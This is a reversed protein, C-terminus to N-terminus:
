QVLIINQAFLLLSLVFLHKDSEAEQTCANMMRSGTCLHEDSEGEQACANM